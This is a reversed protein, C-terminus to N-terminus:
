SISEVTYRRIRIGASWYDAPLGAKRKLQRLFEGPEPLSEWVAPLFTGRRYGEEIILGDVGPRLRALLDAESAFSVPEPVSLISIHIEIRAFEDRGLAPFRPDRFAAAFANQAVDLVLPQHAELTGICGRLQAAVNLTVFSARPAQLGAPYDTARVRPEGGELGARISARALDLLAGRDAPSFAFDGDTLSTRGM